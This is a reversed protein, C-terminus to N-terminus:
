DTTHGTPSPDKGSPLPNHAIPQADIGPSNRYRFQWCEGGTGQVNKVWENRTGVDKQYLDCILHDGLRVQLLVTYIIM